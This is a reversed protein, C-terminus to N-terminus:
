PVIIHLKKKMYFYLFTPWETYIDTLIQAINQNLCNQDDVKPLEPFVHLNGEKKKKKTKEGQTTNAVV